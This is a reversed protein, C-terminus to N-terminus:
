PEPERAQVLALANAPIGQGGTAKSRCHGKPSLSTVTSIGQKM